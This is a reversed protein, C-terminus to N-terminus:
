LFFGLDDLPREDFDLVDALRLFLLSVCDELWVPRLMGARRESSTAGEDGGNVGRFIGIIGDSTSM